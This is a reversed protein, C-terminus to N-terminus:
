PTPAPYFTLFTASARIARKGASSTGSSANVATVTANRVIAGTPDTVQGTLTARFEQALQQLCISVQRSHPGWRIELPRSACTSGGLRTHRLRGHMTFLSSQTPRPKSIHPPFSEMAISITM